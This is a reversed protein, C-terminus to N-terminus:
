LRMLGKIVATYLVREVEKIRDHLKEVTDNRHVRVPEQALIRGADIEYTAIHVTCGTVKVGYKLADAVAHDGKFAPLLSPHTNLIHGGYADFMAQTFVTMYGAMAIWDIGYKQLVAITQKTHATRDFSPSFDTREILEHPVRADAAIGLAPCRRDAVVLEIPLGDELMAKLISGKGSVLVALKPM